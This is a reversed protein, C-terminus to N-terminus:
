MWRCSGQSQWVCAGEGLTVHMPEGQDGVGFLQVSIACASVCLRERM